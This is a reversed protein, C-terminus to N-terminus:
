LPIVCILKLVERGKNLFQHKENPRVFIVDGKSFPVEGDEKRVVGEGEVIFVEHEWPHTHFETHAGPEIEFLRMSFNEAGDREDVLWYLRVGEIPNELRSEKFNRKLM